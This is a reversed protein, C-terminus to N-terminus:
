GCEGKDEKVHQNGQWEDRRREERERAVGLASAELRAVSAKM